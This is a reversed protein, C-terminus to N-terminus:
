RSVPCHTDNKFIYQRVTSKYTVMRIGFHYQQAKVSRLNNIYNHRRNLINFISLDSKYNEFEQNENAEM